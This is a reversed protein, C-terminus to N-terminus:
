RRTRRKQNSGVSNKKKGRMPFRGGGKMSANLLTEKKSEKLARAASKRETPPPKQTGAHLIKEKKRLFLNGESKERM